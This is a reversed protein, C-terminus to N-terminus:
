IIYNNRSTDLIKGWKKWRWVVEKGEFSYRLGSYMGLKYYTHGARLSGEHVVIEPFSLFKRFTWSFKKFKNKLSMYFYLVNWKLQDQMTPNSKFHGVKVRIDFIVLEADNKLHSTWTHVLTAIKEALSNLLNM